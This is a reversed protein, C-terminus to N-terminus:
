ALWDCLRGVAEIVKSCYTELFSHDLNEVQNQAKELANAGDFDVFALRATLESEPIGFDRGPLIAVGTDALLRHCLDPSTHIKRVALRERYHAFDLFVYFGGEPKGLILNAESCRKYIWHSLAKLIRRSQDLYHDIEPGGQFARISAYQIPASTATFTESAVVAMADLLWRLPKPFVFTGLRWGGAGCWKSLGSSVITGEPYFRSISIHKGEFHLESYIEDSLLVIRYKGAVEALEKLEDEGYTCGTPNSPYNLIM